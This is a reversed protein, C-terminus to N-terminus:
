QNQFFYLRGANRVFINRDDQRKAAVASMGVLFLFLEAPFLDKIIVPDQIGVTFHNMETECGVAGRNINIFRDRFRIFHDTQPINFIM